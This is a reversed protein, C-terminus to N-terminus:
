CRRAKSMTSWRCCRRRPWCTLIVPGHRRAVRNPPACSVAGPPMRASPLRCCGPWGPLPAMWRSGGLITHSDFADNPMVDMAMLVAVAIPLDFHSGEKLVDAPALNVTIRRPPLALGMAALAARVRERSEAVAKDALGVINFAVVGSSVQVQCDIDLVDIGNFAVTHTRSVM